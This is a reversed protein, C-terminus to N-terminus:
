TNIASLQPDFCSAKSFIPGAGSLSWHPKSKAYIHDLKSGIWSSHTHQFNSSFVKRYGAIHRMRPHLLSMCLNCLSYCSATFSPICLQNSSCKDCYFWNDRMMNAINRLLIEKVWPWCLPTALIHDSIRANLLTGGDSVLFVFSGNAVWCLHTHICSIFCWLVLCIIFCLLAKFICFCMSVFMCVCVCM